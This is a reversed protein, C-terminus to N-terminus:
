WLGSSTQAGISVEQSLLFVSMQKVFLIVLIVRYEISASWAIDQKSTFLKEGSYSSGWSEM